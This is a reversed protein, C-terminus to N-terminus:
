SAEGWAIKKENVHARFADVAQDLDHDARDWLSSGTASTREITAGRSDKGPRDSTMFLISEQAIDRSAIMRERKIGFVVEAKQSTHPQFTTRGLSLVSVIQLRRLLWERMGSSSKSGIRGTPLVIALRGGPRLLKVCREIFLIDRENRKTPDALEYASILSPERVEGAFPPNTIIADYGSFRSHRVRVTDEITMSHEDAGMAFLSEGIAPTLLSNLRTVNGPPAGAILMMAKSVQIAKADVDFGWVSPADEISESQRLRQSYSISHMLFGSSGCAPDLVQEGPKPDVIRVVAEIVHRPTFYQGKAGKHSQTMLYEFVGDMVELSSDAISVEDLVGACEHLQEPRLRSVEDGDLITPWRREAKRLAKTVLESTQAPSAGLLSGSTGESEMALQAILLKFVESFADEGSGALVLEELRRFVSEWSRPDLQHRKAM